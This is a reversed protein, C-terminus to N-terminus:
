DTSSKGARFIKYGLFAIGGLVLVAPIWGLVKLLFVLLFTSAAGQIWGKVQGKVRASKLQQRTFISTEYKEAM